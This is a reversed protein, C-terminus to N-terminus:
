MFKECAYFTAKCYLALEGNPNLRIHSTVTASPLPTPQQPTLPSSPFCKPSGANAGWAWPHHPTDLTRPWSHSVILRYSYRGAFLSNSSTTPKPYM